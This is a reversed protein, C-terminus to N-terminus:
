PGDPQTPRLPDLMEPETQTARPMTFHATAIPGWQRGDLTYSVQLQYRFGSKTQAFVSSLYGSRRDIILSNAGPGFRDSTETVVLEGITRPLHWPQQEVLRIYLARPKAVAPLTMDLRLRQFDLVTTRLTTIIARVDSQPRPGRRDFDILRELREPLPDVATTAVGEERLKGWAYSSGQIVYTVPEGALRSRLLRALEGSGRRTSFLEAVLAARRLPDQTKGARAWLQETREAEILMSGSRLHVNFPYLPLNLLTKPGNGIAFSLRKMTSSWTGPPVGFAEELAPWRQEAPTALFRTLQREDYTIQYYFSSRGYVAITPRQPYPQRSDARERLGTPPPRVPYMLPPRPFFRPRGTAIEAEAIYAYLETASTSSDLIDGSVVLTSADPLGADLRDRDLNVRFSYNRREQTGWIWRWRSDNNAESRWVRRRGDTLDLRIDADRSRTDHNHRYVIGFRSSTTRAHGKFDTVRRGIRHVAATAPQERWQAGGALLESPGLRGLVARHFAVRADHDRLDYRYVMDISRGSNASNSFSFPSIVTHGHLLDQDVLVVGRIMEESAGGLSLSRGFEALRTVKVQVHHADERWVSIRYSGDVFLRVNASANFIRGIGPIDFELGLSPGIEIKGDALYSVIEGPKIRDIGSSGWPTRIPLVLLNWLKGYRAKTLGDFALLPENPKTQGGNLTWMPPDSADTVLRDDEDRVAPRWALAPAESLADGVAAAQDEPNELQEFQNPLVPRIHIWELGLQGGISFSATFGGGLEESLSLLPASLTTRFRDIVTFSGLVDHNDYVSRGVRVVLKGKGVGVDALPINEILDFIASALEDSHYSLERLQPEAWEAVTARQDGPQAVVPTPEPEASLLRALTGGLFMLGVSVRMAPRRNQTRAYHGPPASEVGLSEDQPQRIASLPLVCVIKMPAQIGAVPTTTLTLFAALM